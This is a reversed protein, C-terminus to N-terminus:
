SFRTWRFGLSRAKARPALARWRLGIDMEGQERDLDLADGLANADAVPADSFVQVAAYAQLLALAPASLAGNFADVQGPTLGTGAIKSRVDANWSPDSVAGVVLVDAKLQTWGGVLLVLGSLGIRVLAPLSPITSTRV